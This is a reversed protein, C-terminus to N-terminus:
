RVTVLQPNTINFESGERQLVTDLALAKNANDESAGWVVTRDDSLHLVLNHAGRAEIEAVQPRSAESISTAVEVAASRVQENGAADGTVEVAGEPAQGVTFEEGSADILHDGDSGTVYAVAVHETVDVAITSPWLRSVTASKVWPLGAVGAAAAHTDVGGMPTGTAIGTAGVIEEPSLQRAGEVAINKVPLLPTRPLILAAAAIVVIAVVAGIIWPRMSRATRATRAM